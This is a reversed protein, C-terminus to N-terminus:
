GSTSASMWTALRVRRRVATAGNFAARRHTTARCWRARDRVPWQRLEEARPRHRRVRLARFIFLLKLPIESRRAWLDLRCSTSRSNSYLAAALRDANRAAVDDGCARREGRQQQKDRDAALQQRRRNAARRQGIRRARQFDREQEVDGDDQEAPAPGLIQLDREVGILRRVPWACRLALVSGVVPRALRRSNIRASSSASSGYLGLADEQQM